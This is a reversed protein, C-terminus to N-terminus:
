GMPPEAQNTTMVPYFGFFIVFNFNVAMAISSVAMVVNAWFRVALLLTEINATLL